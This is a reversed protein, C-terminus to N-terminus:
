EGSLVGSQEVLEWISAAVADPPPHGSVHRLRDGPVLSEARGYIAALKRQLDRTEFLEAPGGRRERREEAVEPSVDVVITLDPRRARGNATRVWGLADEGDPATASQYALSSLDYRDSVVLAGRRIAPEVTSHLHHLRDAAFLLAMTEWSFEHVKGSDNLLKRQLAQRIFAGIPGSTPEATLVVERGSRALTETLLRAQTTSGCGDIGELVIFRGSGSGTM